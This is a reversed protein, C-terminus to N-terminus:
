KSKRPNFTEIIRQPTEGATRVEYPRHRFDASEQAVDSAEQLTKYARCTHLGTDGKPWIIYGTM